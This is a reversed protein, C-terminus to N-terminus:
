NVVQQVTEDIAQDLRELANAADEALRAQVVQEYARGIANAGAQATTPDNATFSITLFDTRLDSSISTDALLDEVPIEAPPDLAPALDSATEAVARSTLVAIQDAIYREPDITRAATFLSSRRTDEVVLGASAVYTPTLRTSYLAGIGAFVLMFIAVIIPQQRIPSLPNVQTLPLERALPETGPTAGPGASPFNPGERFEFPEGNDSASRQIADTLDGYTNKWRQWTAETIELHRVVAALDEGESLMREGELLKSM